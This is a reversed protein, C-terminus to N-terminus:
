VLSKCNESSAMLILLFLKVFCLARLKTAESLMNGRMRLSWFNILGKNTNIITFRVFLRPINSQKRVRVMVICKNCALLM